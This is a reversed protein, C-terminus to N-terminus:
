VLNGRSTGGTHSRGGAGPPRWETDMSIVRSSFSLVDVSAPLFVDLHVEEPITPGTNEVTMKMSVLNSSSSSRSSKTVIKQSFIAFHIRYKQANYSVAFM